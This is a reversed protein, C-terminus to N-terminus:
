AFDFGKAAVRAAGFGCKCAHAFRFILGGHDLDRVRSRRAAPLQVPEEALRDPQAQQGERAGLLERDALEGLEEVLALRVDRAVGFRQPLRPQERHSAVAAPGEHAQGVADGRVGDDPVREVGTAREAIGLAREGPDGLDDGRAVRGRALEEGPGVVGVADGPERLLQGRVQARERREDRGVPERDVRPGAVAGEHVHEGGDEIAHDPDVARVRLELARAAAHDRAAVIVHLQDRALEVVGRDDLADM